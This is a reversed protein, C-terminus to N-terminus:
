GVENPDPGRTGRVLGIQCRWTFSLIELAGGMAAKAISAEIPLEKHSLAGMNHRTRRNHDRLVISLLSMVALKEFEEGM